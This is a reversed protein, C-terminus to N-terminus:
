KRSSPPLSVSLPLVPSGVPVLPALSGPVALVTSVGVSPLAVLGFPAVSLSESPSGLWAPVPVPVPATVLSPARPSAPPQTHAM